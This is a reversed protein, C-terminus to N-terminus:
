FDGDGTEVKRRWFRALRVRRCGGGAAATANNDAANGARGGLPQPVVAPLFLDLVDDLPLPNSDRAGQGVVGVFVRLSVQAVVQHLGTPLRDPRHDRCGPSTAGSKEAVDQDGVRGGEVVVLRQKM